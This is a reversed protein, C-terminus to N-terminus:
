TFMWALQACLIRSSGPMANHMTGGTASVVSLEPAASVNWVVFERGLDAYSRYSHNNPLHLDRSAFDRIAMTGRLKARLDAPTQPDELLRDVARQKSMVGLHGITSQAYYALTTCGSLGIVTTMIGVAVRLPRRGLLWHRM